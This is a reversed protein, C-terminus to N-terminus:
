KEEPGSVTLLAPNLVGGSENAKEGENGLQTKLNHWRRLAEGHEWFGALLQVACGYMFGTIGFGDRQDVIHSTEDAIAELQEGKAMREEMLNAWQEAYDYICKGYEDQNNERGKDWGAQEQERIKM